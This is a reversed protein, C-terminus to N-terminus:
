SYFPAVYRERRSRCCDPFLMGLMNLDAKQIRQNKATELRARVVCKRHCRPVICCWRALGWNNGGVLGGVNVMYWLRPIMM